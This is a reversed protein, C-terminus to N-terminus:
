SVSIESAAMSIGHHSLLHSKLSCKQVFANGCLECKFRRDNNHIRMHEQLTYKRAYAKHCVECAYKREGTHKVMHAKLTKTNFFKYGCETCQYNREMMHNKKIHTMLLSKLIFAKSCVNCKYQADSNHVKVLHQNRQYYSRFSQDCFPCNGITRCGMHSKREHDMRKMNNSFVKECLDCKFSGEIHTAKHANLSRKTIFSSSCKQCIYNTYHKNMHQKLMKFTEYTSTCMSCNFIDGKTLKFPMLYDKVDNHITKNHSKSLHERLKYLNDIEQDCITCKLNSVELKVLYGNLDFITPLDLRQTKHETNTHTRLDKPDMYTKDCYGCIFGLLSRDKFPLVNSFELITTLNDRHKRRELNSKTIVKIDVNMSESLLLDNKKVRDKKEDSIRNIVNKKSINRNRKLRVKREEVLIKQLPEEKVIHSLFYNDSDNSNDNESKPECKVPVDDLYKTLDGLARQMTSNQLGVKNKDILLSENCGLFEVEKEKYLLLMKSLKNESNFVQQKFYYADRLRIICKDCITKSTGQSSLVINFCEEIMDLYIEKNEQYLQPMNM